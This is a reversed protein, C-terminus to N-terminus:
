GANANAQELSQRYQVIAECLVTNRSKGERRAIADLKAIDANPLDIRIRTM